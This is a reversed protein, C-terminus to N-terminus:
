TTPPRPPTPSPWTPRATAPLPRLGRGLRPHRHRHAAALGKWIEPARDGYAAKVWLLLGLGPTSSRPDQIVISLDSAILDEFSKPPDPM